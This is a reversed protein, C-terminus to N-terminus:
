SSSLSINNFHIDTKMYLPGLVTGQPVGSIIPQISTYEKGYKILFYRNELTTPYSLCYLSQSRAPRDPSRIETPRPKGWRELGARPGM